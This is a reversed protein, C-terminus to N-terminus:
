TEKGVKILQHALASAHYYCYGHKCERSTFMVVRAKEDHRNWYICSPKTKDAETEVPESCEPYKCRKMKVDGQLLTLYM